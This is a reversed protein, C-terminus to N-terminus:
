RGVWCGEVGVCAYVACGVVGRGVGRAALAANHLYAISIHMGGEVVTNQRRAQSSNPLIAIAVSENQSSFDSVM